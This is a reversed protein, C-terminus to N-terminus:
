APSGTPNWTKMLLFPKSGTIGGLVANESVVDDLTDGLDDDTTKSQPIEPQNLVEVSFNL